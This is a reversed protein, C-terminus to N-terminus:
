CISANSIVTLVIAAIIESFSCFFLKIHSFIGYFVIHKRNIHAKRMERLHLYCLEHDNDGTTEANLM